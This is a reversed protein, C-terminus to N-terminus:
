NVGSGVCERGWVSDLLKGREEDGAGPLKGLIREVEAVHVHFSDAILAMSVGGARLALMAQVKEPDDSSGVPTWSRSACNLVRHVGTGRRGRRNRGRGMALVSSSAVNKSGFEWTIHVLDSSVGVDFDAGLACVPVSSDGRM